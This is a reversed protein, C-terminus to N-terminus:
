APTPVVADIQSTRIVIAALAADDDTPKAAEWDPRERLWDLAVTARPYVFDLLDRPELDLRACAAAHADWQARAICM